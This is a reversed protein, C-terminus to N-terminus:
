FGSHTVTVLRELSAWCTLTRMYGIVVDASLFGRHCGRSATQAGQGPPNRELARPPTGPASAWEPIRPAGHRPPAARSSPIRPLSPSGGLSFSAPLAPQRAPPTRLRPAPPPRPPAGRPGEPPGTTVRFGAVRCGSRSHSRPSRASFDCTGFAPPPPEMTGTGPRTADTLSVCHTIRPLPDPCPQLLYLYLM